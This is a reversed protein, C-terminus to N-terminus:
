YVRANGDTYQEKGRPLPREDIVARLADDDGRGAHNTRGNGVMYARGDKGIVGHSLPGRSIRAPTPAAEQSGAGADM